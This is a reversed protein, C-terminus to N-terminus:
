ADNRDLGKMFAFIREGNTIVNDVTTMVTKERGAIQFELRVRTNEIGARVQLGTKEIQSQIMSEAASHRIQDLKEAKLEDTKREKESLKRM